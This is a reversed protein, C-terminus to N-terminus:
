WGHGNSNCSVASCPKRWRLVKLESTDSNIAASRASFGHLVKFLMEFSMLHVHCLIWFEVDVFVLCASLGKRDDRGAIRRAPASAPRPRGSPGGSRHMLHEDKPPKVQEADEQWTFDCSSGPANYLASRGQSDGFVTGIVLGHGQHQYKWAFPAFTGARPCEESSEPLELPSTRFFVTCM